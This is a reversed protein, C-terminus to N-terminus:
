NSWTTRCRNYSWATRGRHNSWTAWSTWNLIRTAILAIFTITTVIAARFLASPPFEPLVFITTSFAVVTTVIAVFTIMTAILKGAYFKIKNFKLISILPACRINKPTCEKDIVRTASKPNPIKIFINAYPM